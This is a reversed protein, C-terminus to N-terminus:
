GSERERQGTQRTARVGVSRHHGSQMLFQFTRRGAAISGAVDGAVVGRVTAQGATRPRVTLANQGAHVTVADLLLAGFTHM